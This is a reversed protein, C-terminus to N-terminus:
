RVHCEYGCFICIQQMHLYRRAGLSVLDDQFHAVSELNQRAQVLSAQHLIHWSSLKFMPLCLNTCILSVHHPCTSTYCCFDTRTSKWCSHLGFTAEALLGLTFVFSKVTLCPFEGWRCLLRGQWLPGSAAVAVALLVAWVVCGAEALGGAGGVMICGGVVAGGVVAAVEACFLAEEVM